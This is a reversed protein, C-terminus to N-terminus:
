HKDTIRIPESRSTNNTTQYKKTMDLYDHWTQPNMLDPHGKKLDEFGSIEAQDWNAQVISSRPILNNNNLSEPPLAVSSGVSGCTFFDEELELDAGALHEEIYERQAIDVISELTGPPSKPQDEGFESVCSSDNTITSVASNVSTKQSPLPPNNEKTPTALTSMVNDKNKIKDVLVCTPYAFPIVPLGSLKAEELYALTTPTMVDNHEPPRSPQQESFISFHQEMLLATLANARPTCGCIANSEILINRNFVVGDTPTGM